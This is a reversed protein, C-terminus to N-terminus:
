SARRRQNRAARALRLRNYDFGEGLRELAGTLNGDGIEDFVADIRRLQEEGVVRAVDVDEGAECAGALHSLITGEVLGRTTAIEGPSKGDRFLRLTERVTEGLPKTVAPAAPRDWTRKGHQAVHKRIAGLFVAGLDALKKEGVGNIRRFAGEDTPYERAMQRLSTDGFIVYAPVDREDALSKRLERLADFLVDDCAIAAPGTATKPAAIARTLTITARKTLAERGRPTVEVVPFRDGTHDIFGLRSLERGVAQWEARDLEKGIGYTSLTEHGLRTVKEAKSGTLVAAVHSLGVSLDSKQRIRLICSLLKQAVITGDYPERPSLCNDCAGCPGADAESAEGFYALLAARRCTALEAFHVVADLKKKASAREALDTKEDLFRAQKVADSAKFLLLCESPLGDRGARGTEQYYSEVDKPLDHHVVFRVNPKNIGMGFAVTACVIKVQDRSFAEHVRAREAPEMGAHYAAARLGGESLAEALREVSNRSQAYVIGCDDSRSALFALLQAKPDEKAEVRYLLNPRNFSAVYFRPDRLRLSAAIDDRVRPTATASLAMISAQPFVDRLEALRRYEPRFDHGWASICHAEDVAFAQVDLAQLASVFSPMVLREPAVYLLRYRGERLGNMRARVEAGEISSNLFTAPVGAADLADVQDKMLAILPSVVVTLGRRVMAPLQFCLSKGGGTPLLAVVDRGALADEIIERQLPRFEEFGFYRKLADTLAEAPPDALAAPKPSVARRLTPATVVELM